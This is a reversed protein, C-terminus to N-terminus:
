NTNLATKIITIVEEDQREEAIELSTKGNADKLTVDAGSALLKTILQVRKNFVAFTLATRGDESKINTDAGRSLLLDIIAAHDNYVASLLPTWGTSSKQNVDAGRELLLTVIEHQGWLCAEVLAAGGHKSKTNPDMLRDLLGRVLDLCGLRSAIVLDTVPDGTFACEGAWGRLEVVEQEGTATVFIFSETLDSRFFEASLPSDEPSACQPRWTKNHISEFLLTVEEHQTADSYASIMLFDERIHANSLRLFAARVNEITFAEPEIFVAIRRVHWTRNSLQGNGMVLYEIGEERHESRHDYEASQSVGNSALMMAVLTGILLHAEVRGTQTM